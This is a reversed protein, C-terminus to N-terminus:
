DKGYFPQWIPDLQTTLPKGDADVLYKSRIQESLVEAGSGALASIAIVATMGIWGVPTGIMIVALTTGAAAGAFGAAADMVIATRETNSAALHVDAAKIGLDVWKLVVLGRRSLNGIRSLTNVEDLIAGTRVVAHPKVRLVEGPKRGPNILKQLPGLGSDIKKISLARRYNYQNRSLTGMEKRYYNLAISRMEPIMETTVGEVLEIFGKGAERAIAEPNIIGIFDRSEAPLHTLDTAIRASASVMPAPPRPDPQCATQLDPLMIVQGPFIRDPNMLQPNNAMILRTLTNRDALFPVRGYHSLAIGHLTNGPKVEYFALSMAECRNQATRAAHTTGPPDSHKDTTLSSAVGRPMM